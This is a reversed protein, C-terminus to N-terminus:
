QKLLSMPYLILAHTLNEAEAFQYLEMLILASSSYCYYLFRVWIKLFDEHIPLPPGFVDTNEVMLLLFFFFLCFGGGGFGWLRASYVEWRGLRVVSIGPYKDVYSCRGCQVYMGLKWKSSLYYFFFM